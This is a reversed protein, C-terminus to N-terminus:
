VGANALGIQCLFVPHDDGEQLLVGPRGVRDSAAGSIAAGQPSVLSEAPIVRAAEGPIDTNVLGSHAEGPEVM